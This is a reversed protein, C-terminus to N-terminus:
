DTLMSINNESFELPYDMKKNKKQQQKTKNTKKTQKNTKLSRFFTETKQDSAYTHQTKIM